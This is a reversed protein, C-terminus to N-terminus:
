NIEKLWDVIKQSVEQQQADNTIEAKGDGKQKGYSGFGGHNGGEITTYAANKPLYKKAADYSDWNLVKDNSATISLVPLETQKLSGKEDPYSALFIMGAVQNAHEDAFRSAMVGGLSHGALIYKQQPKQEIIEEAKNGGLVALDLPMKVIYVNYGAAAVEKAWVSYSEADVLAGPYFILNTQSEEPAEFLLYGADNQSVKAASVANEAPPYTLSNLYILGGSVLLALTIIVGLVIKQWRKLRKM